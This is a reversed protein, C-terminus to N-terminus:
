HSGMVCPLKKNMLAAVHSSCTKKIWIALFEHTREIWCCPQALSGDCVGSKNQAHNKMLEYAFSPQVFVFTSSQKHPKPLVLWASFPRPTIFVNAAAATM